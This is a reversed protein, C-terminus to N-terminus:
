NEFDIVSTGLALLGNELEKTPLAGDGEISKEPAAPRVVPAALPYLGKAGLELEDDTPNLLAGTLEAM